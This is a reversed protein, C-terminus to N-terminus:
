IFELQKTFCLTLWGSFHAHKRLCKLMIQNSIYRYRSVGKTIDQGCRQSTIMIVSIMDGCEVTCCGCANAQVTYILSFSQNYYSIM